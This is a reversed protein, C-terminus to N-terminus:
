SSCVRTWGFRKVATAGIFLSLIIVMFGTLGSEIAVGNITSELWFLNLANKYYIEVFNVVSGYCIVSIAINAIYSSSFIVKISETFGLKPKNKKPKSKAPDYLDPDTLVHEQMWKYIYLVVLGLVIVIGLSIQLFLDKKQKLFSNFVALLVGLFILSVNAVLNILPYFRGAEDVQQNSHCVCPAFIM